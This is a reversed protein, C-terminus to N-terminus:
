RNAPREGLTVTLEQQEGDRLVTLAVKEGPKYQALLGILDQMTAVSEGEIAIIVDGGTLIEQGEVELPEDGGRLGAEDAPSGPQVEQVLVGQQDADLKMAEAAAPTLAGATIGLWARGSSQPQQKPGPQQPQNGSEPALQVDKAPRADLTVTVEEQQGDRLVTLAVKQGVSTSSALYSILDDMSQIPTGEIAIIVDGGVDVPQGDIQVEKDSGRLGAKDAPGGSVAEAVLV